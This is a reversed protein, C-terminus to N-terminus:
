TERSKEMRELDCIEGEMDRFAQAQIKDVEQESLEREPPPEAGPFQVIENM